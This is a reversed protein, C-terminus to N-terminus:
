SPAVANKPSLRGPVNGANGKVTGNARNEGDTGMEPIM